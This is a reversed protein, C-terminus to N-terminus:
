NFTFFICTLIPMDVNLAYTYFHGTEEQFLTWTMNDYLWCLHSYSQTSNGINSKQM